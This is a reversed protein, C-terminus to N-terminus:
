TKRFSRWLGALEELTLLRLLFCLGLFLGAGLGSQWLISWLPAWIGQAPVLVLPFLWVLVGAALVLRLIWFGAKSLRNASLPTQTAQSLFYFCLGMNALNSVTHHMVVWGIQDQVVALWLCFMGSLAAAVGTWLLARTQKLSSLVRNFLNVLAIPIIAFLLARFCFATTQVATEDFAGRAYLLRILPESFLFGLTGLLALVLTLKRSMEWTLDFIGGYNGLAQEELVKPWLVTTLALVLINHPILALSMGYQYSSVLGTGFGTFSRNAYLLYVQALLSTLLISGIMRLLPAEARPKASWHHVFGLSKLEKLQLGGLIAWTAVAGLCLAVVGLKSAFLFLFAISGLTGLIRGLYQFIYKKFSVLLSSQVETLPMLVILPTLWVLLVAVQDQIGTQSPDILWGAIQSRFGLALLTIALSLLFLLNLRASFYLGADEEGQLRKGVYFPILSDRVPVALLTLSNIGMLAIWYADMEKGAGFYYSLLLQNLFSLPYALFSVSVLTLFGKKASM